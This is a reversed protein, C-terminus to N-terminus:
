ENDEKTEELQQGEVIIYNSHSHPTSISARTASDGTISVKDLATKELVFNESRLLDPDINFAKVYFFYYLFIGVLLGLIVVILGLMTLLLSYDKALTNGTVIFLFGTISLITPPWILGKLVNTKEGQVSAHNLISSISNYM